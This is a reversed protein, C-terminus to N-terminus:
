WGKVSTFIQNLLIVLPPSSLFSIVQRPQPGREKARSLVDEKARSHVDEKPTRKERGAIAKLERGKTEAPLPTPNAAVRDRVM